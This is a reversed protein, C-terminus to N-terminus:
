EVLLDNSLVNEYSVVNSMDDLVIGHSPLISPLCVFSRSLLAVISQMLCGAARKGGLVTNFAFAFLCYVFDHLNRLDDWQVSSKNIQSM